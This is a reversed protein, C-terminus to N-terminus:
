KMSGKHSGKGDLHKGTIPCIKGSSGCDSKYGKDKQCMDLWHARQEENLVKQIDSIAKVYVKASNTKATYKADVLRNVEGLDIMEEHMASKLDVKVIDKDAKLQILDKMAKNKIAKIQDSQEDTIKLHEKYTCLPKTKKKLKQIKCKSKKCEYKACQGDKHSSAFIYAPNIAVLGAVLLGTIWLKKM